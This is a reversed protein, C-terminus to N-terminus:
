ESGLKVSLAFVGVLRASTEDTIEFLAAHEILGKDDPTTFEAAGGEELAIHLVAFAPATVVVGVREGCPHSSASDFGADGMSRRVVDAEVGHVVLDMDMVKLRGDQMKQADIMLLQGELELTPM